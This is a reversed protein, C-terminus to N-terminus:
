GDDHVDAASMRECHVPCTVALVTRTLQLVSKTFVCSMPVPGTSVLWQIRHSRAECDLINPMVSLYYHPIHIQSVCTEIECLDRHLQSGTVNRSVTGQFAM